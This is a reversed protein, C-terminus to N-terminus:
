SGKIHAGNNCEGDTKAIVQLLTFNLRKAVNVGHLLALVEAHHANRVKVKCTFGAIWIGLHDRLVGGTGGNTSNQEFSGYINLKLVGEPPKYIGLWQGPIM